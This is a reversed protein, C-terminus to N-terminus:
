ELFLCELKITQVALSLSLHKMVDVCSILTKFTKEGELCLSELKNNPADTIFFFHKMVNVRSTLTIFSKRRGIM